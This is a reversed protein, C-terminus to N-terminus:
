TIPGGFHPIIQLGGLHRNVFSSEGIVDLIAVLASLKSTFVVFNYELGTSEQTGMGFYSKAIVKGDDNSRLVAEPRWSHCRKSSVITRGHYVVDAKHYRVGVLM